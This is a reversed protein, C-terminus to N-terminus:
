RKITLIKVFKEKRSMNYLDMPTVTFIGFNKRLNFDAKPNATIIGFYILESCYFSEHSKKSFSDFSYDYKKGVQQKCFYVFDEKHEWIELLKKSPRLICIRDKSSLMEVLPRKIVGRGIAEVIMPIGNEKGVYVVAHKWYGLNILNSMHSDSHTLLVDGMLLSNEIDYYRKFIHEKSSSKFYIEGIFKTIPSIFLLFRVYATQILKKM